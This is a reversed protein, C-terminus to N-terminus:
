QNVNLLVDVDHIAGALKVAVQIPMAKRAARDAPFQTNFSASYVYFGKPLFDGQGLQGFGGANWVGPAILGNIVGQACVAEVATLLLRQGQDTQPIKTTSTYLLNYLERQITTALWDIGMVTDVFEGNAMVGEQFIATDNAYNVFVNANKAAATNAQSTSLTEAEIGPEQKFKLTIVTNNANYNTTLIRALASTAALKNKSSFQTMTRLFGLDRLRSALDTTTVAVLVGQSQTTVGLVHKNISGEVASAVDIQEDDTGAPLEIAYWQQGFQDDFLLMAEEATEAAMGAFVYAGAPEDVARAGLLQTIDTGGSPPTFFSIASTPGTTQSTFEFRGVSANWTVTVGTMSGQLIAAVSNLNAAGSFNLSGVATAAAGDKQYRFGGATVAQFQAIAQQSASLPAARLGGGAATNVWRGILIQTPQPAQQFWLKAAEYEDSSTGFDAAVSGIDSYARMREKQDIVTSTGLVLLDSLSQSQAGAPTLLVSVNVIRSVPLKAM